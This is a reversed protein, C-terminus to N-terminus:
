GTKQSVIDAPTRGEGILQGFSRNRSWDGSCTAVLDGFGSLGFFTSQQGGLLVGLQVM